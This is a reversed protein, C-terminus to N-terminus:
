EYLQRTKKKAIHMIRIITIKQNISLQMVAM